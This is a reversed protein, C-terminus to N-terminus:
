NRSSSTLANIPAPRNQVPPMTVDTVKIKLDPNQEAVDATLKLIMADSPNEATSWRYGSITPLRSLQSTMEKQPVFLAYVPLAAALGKQAFALAESKGYRWLESYRYNHMEDLPAAVLQNPLLANLYVPDIDSLVIGPQEGVRDILQEVARFRVSRSPPNTFNLADWAQSRDTQVTNYGSRSPYGLCAAAFVVFIALAPIIRKAYFLNKAAWTVPLVAVAILIILLPLYYRTDVLIYNHSLMVLLFTLCALLSCSTYRTIRIFFFGVCILIIFAAVFSTGTGFINATHYGNPYLAFERWLAAVNYPIYRVSFLLHHESWYPVWFDYGTKLPSHFQIINLVLVPSAALLFVIPIAACHLFWRLRMGRVPFLAMALLLPAFFLSQIRINLSLGLFVASAYIKWRSEEKLGLYASMFALVVFLSAGMESMSSRCFTFFSPLTALLLAAFGGTMPMALYTYFGFVALLLLLGITQNTRFPALVADQQPLVKLWPLMLAPYGPPYRSPLKDYGIQISPWGDRLMAKAQAFYEVADTYPGLDLLATRKLQVGLVTGYYFFLSLIFCLVGTAIGLSRRGPTRTFSSSITREPNYQELKEKDTMKLFDAL